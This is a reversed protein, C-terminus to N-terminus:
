CFASTTQCYASGTCPATTLEEKPMYLAAVAQNLHDAQLNALTERKLSLKKKTKKM